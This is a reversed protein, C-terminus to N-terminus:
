VFCGTENHRASRSAIEFKPRGIYRWSTGISALAYNTTVRNRRQLGAAAEKPTPRHLDWQKYVPKGSSLHNTAPKAGRSRIRTGTLWLGHESSVQQGEMRPGGM